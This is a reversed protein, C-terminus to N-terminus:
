VQAVAVGILSAGIWYRQNGIFEIQTGPKIFQFFRHESPAAM